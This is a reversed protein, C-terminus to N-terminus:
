REGGTEWLIGGGTLIAGSSDDVLPDAELSRCAMPMAKPLEFLEIAYVVLSSLASTMALSSPPAYISLRLATAGELKVKLDDFGKSIIRRPRRPIYHAAPLAAASGCCCSCPRKKGLSRPGLTHLIGRFIYLV